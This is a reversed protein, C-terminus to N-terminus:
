TEITIHKKQPTPPRGRHPAALQHGNSGHQTRAGVRPGARSDGGTQTSMRPALAQRTLVRLEPEAMNLWSGHRLTFLPITNAGAALLQAVMDATFSRSAAENGPFDGAM